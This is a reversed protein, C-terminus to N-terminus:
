PAATLEQEPRRPSGHHHLPDPGGPVSRLEPTVRGAAAAAWSPSSSWAPSRAQKKMAVGRRGEQKTEMVHLEPASLVAYGRSGGVSGTGVRGQVAPVLLALCCCAVAAAASCLFFRGM